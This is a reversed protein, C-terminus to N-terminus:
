RGWIRRYNARYGSPPDFVVGNPVDARTILRPPALYGSPPQGARARNLEDVIQWGQLYLPEAVSATQHDGSRIRQFDSADGDGAGIAFPPDSGRRGANVFGALAGGIYIGNIALMYRFRPGFRHLLSSVIAPMQQQALDIPANVIHLVACRRCRRIGAAMVDAKYAAIPYRRDTVIVVHATGRSRAIAFDAALRAVAGPDTSVNTFLGAQRDPGPRTGAHWGVVPIGLAGARRLAVTQARADFGGLVIGSPRLHLASRLVRAQGATTGGGDRIQLQWGIARAAQQVGVAAGGIGGNTLDGAVFVVLGGRQARPGSAPGRYGTQPSLGRAVDAQARRVLADAPRAGGHHDTGCGAVVLGTTVIGTLVHRRSRGSSRFTRLFGHNAAM